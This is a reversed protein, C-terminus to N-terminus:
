CLGGARRSVPLGRANAHTIAIALADTADPGPLDRLGLIAGVIRALQDKPARGRGAVSRKVLAPPYASIPLDASAGALLAVGRAQGLTLASRVNHAHFIDEVAMESPRHVAIVESLGAYITHLRRHLERRPRADIVGAAVYRLKSGCREIIGWGTRLSGPDVGLVIM